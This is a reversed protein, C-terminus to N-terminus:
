SFLSDRPPLHTRSLLFVVCPIKGQLPLLGPLLLFFGDYPPYLNGPFGGMRCRCGSKQAKPPIQMGLLLGLSGLCFKLAAAMKWDRAALYQNACALLKNM